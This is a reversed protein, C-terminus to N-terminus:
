RHGGSLHCPLQRELIDDGPVGIHRRVIIAETPEAPDGLPRRLNIRTTSQVQQGCIMPRSGALRSSDHHKPRPLPDGPLSDLRGAQRAPTIGPAVDPGPYLSRQASRWRRNRVPVGLISAVTRECEDVREARTSKPLPLVWYGAWEAAKSPEYRHVGLRRAAAGRVHDSRQTQGVYCAYGGATVAVYIAKSDGGSCASLPMCVARRELLPVPIAAAVADYVTEDVRIVGGWVRPMTGTV